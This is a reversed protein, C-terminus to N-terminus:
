KLLDNQKVEYFKAKEKTNWEVTVNLIALTREPIDIHNKTTVISGTVYTEISEVLILNNDQLAFKGEKTWTTGLKFTRLLDLGLICPRKLDKCIIFQYNYPKEGLDFQCEAIGSTRLKSGSASRVDINYVQRPYPLMLSQYYTESMVSRTAGTDILANCKSNQIQMPVTAGVTTGVRVETIYGKIHKWMPPEKDEITTLYSDPDYKM